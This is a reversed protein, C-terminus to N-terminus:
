YVKVGAASIEVMGDSGRLFIQRFAGDLIIGRSLPGNKAFDALQQKTFKIPEGYFLANKVGAATAQNSNRRIEKMMSGMSTTDHFLKLSTPIELGPERLPRFVGEIGQSSNGYFEFEGGGEWEGLRKAQTVEFSHEPPGKIIVNTTYEIADASESGYSESDGTLRKAKANRAQQEEWKRVFERAKAGVKGGLQGVVHAVMAMLVEVPIMALLESAIRASSPIEGVRTTIDLELKLEYAKLGVNGVALSAFGAGVLATFWGPPGSSGAAAGAVAGLGFVAAGIGAVIALNEPQMLERIAVGMEGAIMDKKDAYQIALLLKQSASM